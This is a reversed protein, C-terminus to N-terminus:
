SDFIDVSERVSRKLITYEIMCDGVEVVVTLNEQNVLTIRHLNM